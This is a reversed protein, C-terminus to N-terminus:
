RRLVKQTQHQYILFEKGVVVQVIDGAQLCYNSNNCVRGNLYIAGSQVLQRAEWMYTAFRLSYLVYGLRAGGWKIGEWIGGGSNSIDSLYRALRRFRYYLSLIYRVELRMRKLYCLQRRGPDTTRM